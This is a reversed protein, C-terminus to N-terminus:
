GASNFHSTNQQARSGSCNHPLNRFEPTRIYVGFLLAETILVGVFPVKLVYTYRYIYICIFYMYTSLAWTEPITSASLQWPAFRDKIFDVAMLASRASASTFLRWADVSGQLLGMRAATLSYQYAWLAHIKCLFKLLPWSIMGIYFGMDIKFIARSDM